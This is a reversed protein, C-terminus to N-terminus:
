KFLLASALQPSPTFVLAGVYATVGPHQPKFQLHIRPLPQQSSLTLQMFSFSLCMVAQSAAELLM